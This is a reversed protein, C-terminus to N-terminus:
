GAAGFEDGLEHARDRAALIADVFATKVGRQEL